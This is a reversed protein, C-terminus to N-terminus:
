TLGGKHCGPCHIINPPEMDQTAIDVGPCDIFGGEERAMVERYKTQAAELCGAVLEAREAAEKLNM